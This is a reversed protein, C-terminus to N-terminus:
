RRQIFVLALQVHLELGGGCLRDLAGKYGGGFVRARNLEERKRAIGNTMRADFSLSVSFLTQFSGVRQVDYRRDAM